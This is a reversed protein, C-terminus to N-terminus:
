CHKFSNFEEYSMIQNQNNWNDFKLVEVSDVKSNFVQSANAIKKGEVTKYPLRDKKPYCLNLSKRDTNKVLVETGKHTKYISFHEGKDLMELVQEKKLYGLRDVIM